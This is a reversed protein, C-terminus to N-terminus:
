RTLSVFGAILSALPAVRPIFSIEQTGGVWLNAEIAECDGRESYGYCSESIWSLVEGDILALTVLM